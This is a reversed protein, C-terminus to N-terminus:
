FLSLEKCAVYVLGIVLIFVFNRDSAEKQKELKELRKISFEADSCRQELSEIERKLKKIEFESEINSM